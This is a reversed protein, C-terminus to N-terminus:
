SSDGVGPDRGSSSIVMHQVVATPALIQREDRRVPEVEERRRLLARQDQPRTVSM